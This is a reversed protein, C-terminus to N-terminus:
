VPNRFIVELLTQGVAKLTNRSINDMTDGHTHWHKWFHFPTNHDYHIIDICKINGMKNVYYHDDVIGSTVDQVFYDSYGANAATRWVLEVVDSAFQMSTGEKSFTANEAATMDLLIGFRAQYGNVHKNKAWYQSGYCFSNEFESKGYDEMDFFIIDIGADSNSLALQRAVELLTAVPAAGDNAGDNPKDKEVSDQDAWPRTDWHAALLIRNAKTPNFSGIINRMRLTKGDYAPIPARQEIITDCWRRLQAVLYDGCNDHATSNPIRPGFAVQTETYIYASDPNFSPVNVVPTPQEVNSNQNTSNCSCGVIMILLLSPFFSSLLPKTRIGPLAM